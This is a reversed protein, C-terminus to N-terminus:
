GDAQETTQSEVRCETDILLVAMKTYEVLEMYAQEDDQQGQQEDDYQLRAIDALDNLGEKAEQGITDFDIKALGLGSLYGQSWMALADIRAQFSQQDSPLLLEFETLPDAEFAAQTSQYMQSVIALAPKTTADNPDLPKTVLADLWANLRIDAGATILACLLGHAESAESLARIKLLADAMQTYAPLKTQNSM